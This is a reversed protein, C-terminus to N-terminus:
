ISQRHVKNTINYMINIILTDLALILIPNLLNEVREGSLNFSTFDLLEPLNSKLSCEEKKLQNAPNVSASPLKM